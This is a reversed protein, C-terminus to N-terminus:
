LLEKEAARVVADIARSRPEDIVYLDKRAWVDRVKQRAAQLMDRSREQALTSPCHHDSLPPVWQAARFHELTHADSLFEGGIGVRRIAEVAMAAADVEVPAYMRRIAAAIELDLVAQEPSFRKGGALLGVPFGLRGQAAGASFKLAKEALSQAGPYPADLYGLGIALDQGYFEDYLQAFAADQLIAQPAAFSAAGTSMNMVGSIVGGGIMAEPEAAHLCALVGLIEANGVVVNGALTVPSSGGALPMPIITCPLRHRALMLLVRGDDAPFRLPAITEKATVFCPQRRHAEAGGRVIQGIEILYKLERQNWVETSGCKTTHKAVLAATRIRQMPPPVPRGADDVLCAVPNGVFGVGELAEGLQLLRILDAQTPKRVADVDLDLYEICAGGFKCGHPPTWRPTTVGNLLCQRQGAAIRRRLDDLMAEVLRPPFKVVRSDADVAAGAQRLPPYFDECEVRLGVDRLVQLTADHISQMQPGTLPRAPGATTAPEM